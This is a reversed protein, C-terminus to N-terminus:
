AATDFATNLTFADNSAGAAQEEAGSVNDFLSNTAGGSLHLQLSAAM